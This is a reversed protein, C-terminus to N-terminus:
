IRPPHFPSIASGSARMQQPLENVCAVINLTQEILFFSPVVHSCCCFCDDDRQFPLNSSNREPPQSSARLIKNNSAGAASAPADFDAMCVQPVFLDVLTWLLFFIAISRYM